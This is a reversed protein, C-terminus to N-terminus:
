IFCGKMQFMKQTDMDFGIVHHLVIHLVNEFEIACLGPFDCRITRMDMVFDELIKTESNAPPLNEM